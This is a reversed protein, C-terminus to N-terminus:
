AIRMKIRDEPKAALLGANIKVKEGSRLTFVIGTGKKLVTKREMKETLLVFANKTEDIIKGSIGELSRNRSEEVRAMLGIFEHRAIDKTVSM